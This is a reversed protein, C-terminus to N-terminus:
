RAALEDIYRSMTEFEAKGTSVLYRIQTIDSVHKNRAFENKAYSIPEDRKGKPIRFLNRLIDRYLGLVRGRQIFTELSPPRPKNTPLRSPKFSKITALLSLSARM